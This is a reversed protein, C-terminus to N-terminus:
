LVSFFNGIWVVMVIKAIIKASLTDKLNFLINTDLTPSVYLQNLNLNKSLQDHSLRPVEFKRNIKKDVFKPTQTNQDKQKGLINVM